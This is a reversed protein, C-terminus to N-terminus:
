GRMKNFIRHAAQKANSIIEDTDLNTIKREHMIIIGDVIVTNVDSSNASFVLDAVVRQIDLLKEIRPEFHTQLMNITIIDASKGEEISGIHEGRGLIKAGNLTAMEIADWATLTHDAQCLRSLFVALRMEEFLDHRGSVQRQTKGGDSILTRDKM